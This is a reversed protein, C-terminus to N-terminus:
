RFSPYEVFDFLVFTHVGEELAKEYDIKARNLEEM